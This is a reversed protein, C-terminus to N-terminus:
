EVFSCFLPGSKLSQRQQWAMSRSALPLRYSFSDIHRDPRVIHWPPARFPMYLICVSQLPEPAPFSPFALHIEDVPLPTAPTSGKVLVDKCPLPPLLRVSLKPHSSTVQLPSPLEFNLVHLCWSASEGKRVLSEVELRDKLSPGVSKFPM